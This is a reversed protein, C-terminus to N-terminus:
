RIVCFAVNSKLTGAPTTVKVTGTTAGTPVTATIETGSVVKFAAVKGNFTVRTTGKLNNGLIIVNAGVKGSTPQTKVFPGLGVSLSFVTGYDAGGGGGATTGYFTGDTDQLLGASPHAGDTCSYQPCFTYLTTLKGAPTIEFVTGYPTTWQGYTTGYFRGNTAQVLEWPSQGDACNAQACFSHLTTLRGAPTIEFVTGYNGNAGGGETTGYLNGNTAQVLATQPSQGDACNAQACFSYLTTFKGAPTIEFVTGWNHAGGKKTTGYFNGNTAQVLGALTFAGDTCNAQSCFNHLTTLIGGPTIKYITGCSGYEDKPCYTSIGGATTTGYLNGDTARVVGTRPDAGDPCNTQSCFNHLTTLKGSPTIRFITGCSLTVCNTGTGGGSTTGYFYGNATQVLDTWPTEGTACNGNPCFSYLVTEKGATTIEFVTGENDTGGEATTGYLNGDTGQALVADPYAGYPPGAFTYLTKFTQASSVIATAACVVFIM